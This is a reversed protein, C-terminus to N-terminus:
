TLYGIKKSSVIQELTKLYPEHGLNLLVERAKAYSRLAKEENGMFRHINGEMVAQKANDVHGSGLYQLLIDKARDTDRFAVEFDGQRMRIQSTLLLCYSVSLTDDIAEFWEIAKNFLTMSEQADGPGDRKYLVKALHFASWGLSDEVTRRYFRDSIRFAERAYKESLDYDGIYQYIESLRTILAKMWHGELQSLEAENVGEVLALGAQAQLIAEQPNGSLYYGHSLKNFVMLRDALVDTQKELGHLLAVGRLYASTEFVTQARGWLMLWKKPHRRPLRQCVSAFCAELQKREELKLHALKSNNENLADLLPECCSADKELEELLIQSVLPHLHVEDTAPNHIVWSRQILGDIVDFDDLGCWDYLTEVPIGQLPLLALNKLLEIQEPDLASLQFVKQLRGFILDAAKGNVQRMQAAGERLLQMMKEAGIRRSQMTSAVLRISLPHGDLQRLLQVAEADKVDTRKYEARFLELLEEEDTIPSVELEELQCSLGHTRTTFLVSYSGSCFAELDPDEPVDFNDMVILVRSDTITKLLKLKRQFYDRDSDQPYESRELGQIPFSFDNILTQELSGDFCVWLVVDYHDRYRSCYTKAIQSKGIGGMGVLLLKNERSSLCNHIQELERKRGVFCKDAYITSGVISYRKREQGAGSVMTTKEAKKGLIGSIRDILEQIRQIEPPLSGDMIHIRGLYYFVADSLVCDDMRFPLLTIDEHRRFREFACNIENRVDESINSNRNLILLFVRCGNIARVISGAYDGEVNRPAYWCSIGAGELAACIQRVIQASSGTHYSIFVDPQAMTIKGEKDATSRIVVNEVIIQNDM